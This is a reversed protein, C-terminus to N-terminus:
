NQKYTAEEEIILEAMHAEGWVRVQERGVRQEYEPSLEEVTGVRCPGEWIATHVVNSFIPKVNIKVDIVKKMHFAKDEM